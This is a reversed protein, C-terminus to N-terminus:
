AAARERPSASFLVGLSAGFAEVQEVFQGFGKPTLQTTSGVCIRDGDPTHDWKKYAQWDKVLDFIHEDDEEPLYERKMYEHLVEASYQRGGIWAQDAIESARVWYYANQDLGRVRKEERVEVELPKAPDIPVHRLLNLATELPVQGTLRIVRRSFKPRTM